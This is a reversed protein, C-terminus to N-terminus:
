PQVSKSPSTKGSGSMLPLKGKTRGSSSAGIALQRVTKEQIPKGRSPLDEGFDRGKFRVESRRISSPPHISMMSAISNTQFALQPLSKASATLRNRQRDSRCIPGTFSLDRDPSGRGLLRSQACSEEGPCNRYPRKFYTAPTQSPRPSRGIPNRDAGSPNQPHQIPSTPRITSDPSQNRRFHLGSHRKCIRKARTTPAPLACV